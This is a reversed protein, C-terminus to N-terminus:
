FSRTELILTLGASVCADILGCGGRCVGVGLSGFMGGFVWMLRIIVGRCEVFLVLGEILEARLALEAVHHETMQCRLGAVHEGQPASPNPSDNPRNPHDQARIMM